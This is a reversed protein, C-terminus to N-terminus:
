EEEFYPALFDILSTLNESDLDWHDENTYDRNREKALDSENVLVSVYNHIKTKRNLPFTILPITNVCRNFADFCELIPRNKQNIISELLTELDGNSQNNPFLYTEFEVGLDIKKENLEGVRGEFNGNADFVVLNSFGQETSIIFKPLFEALHDKGKVEQIETGAKLRYNFRRAVFDSIFKVDATGEVFITGKFSM